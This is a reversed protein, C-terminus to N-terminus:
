ADASDGTLSLYVDELTPRSVSLEALEVGERTAAGAAAALLATPARTDVVAVGERVHRAVDPPLRLGDPVRFRVTAVDLDQGGLTAPDGEVILRGHAVVAVRDALAAAEELYHTTLLVTAGDAALSRIVDWTRRRARPDFGTTPEDLFVVEPRGVLALALDLRRQQGGSLDGARRDRQGHLDMVDLLEEVTRPQRYLSAYLSLAEVVTLQPEVTTAQLLVGIRERWASGGGAPDVGLVRATGADARRYGELIEVCTTKGAGNPGLVAYVEGAAVEFSVGDLATIPGYRKRLGDVTVAAM